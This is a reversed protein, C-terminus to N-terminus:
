ECEGVHVLACSTGAADATNSGALDARAEAETISGLMRGAAERLAFIPDKSTKNHWAWAVLFPRFDDTDALGEGRAVREIEIRRAAVEDFSRKLAARARTSLPRDSHISPM